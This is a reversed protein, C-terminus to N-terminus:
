PRDIRPWFRHGLYTGLWYLVVGAAFITVGVWTISGGSPESTQSLSWSGAAFLSGVATVLAGPIQPLKRM